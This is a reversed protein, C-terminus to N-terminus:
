PESEDEENDPFMVRADFINLIFVMDNVVQYPIRYPPVILERLNRESWEPVLRGLQPFERM